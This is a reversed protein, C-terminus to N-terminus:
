RSHEPGTDAHSVGRGGKVGEEFTTEEGPSGRTVRCTSFGAGRGRGQGWMYM